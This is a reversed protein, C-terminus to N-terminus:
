LTELFIDTKVEDINNFIGDPNNIDYRRREVNSQKGKNSSMAISTSKMKWIGVRSDYELIFRVIPEKIDDIILLYTIQKWKSWVDEFVYKYYIKKRM